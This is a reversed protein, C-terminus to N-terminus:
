DICNTDELSGIVCFIEGGEQNYDSPAFSVSDYVGANRGFIATSMRDIFQQPGHNELLEPLQRQLVYLSCMGSKTLEVYSNFQESLFCDLGAFTEILKTKEGGLKEFTEYLKMMPISTLFWIAQSGLGEFCEPFAGNFLLMAHYSTLMKVKEPAFAAFRDANSRLLEGIWKAHDPSSSEIKAFNSNEERIDQELRMLQPSKKILGQMNAEGYNEGEKMVVAFIERDDARYVKPTSCDHSTGVSVLHIRGQEFVKDAFEELMPVIVQDYVDRKYNNWSDFVLSGSVSLWAYGEGVIEYESYDIAKKPDQAIEDLDEHSQGSFKDKLLVYVGNNSKKMSDIVCQRSDGELHMCNDVVFGLVYGM